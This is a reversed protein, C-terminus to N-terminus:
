KKVEAKFPIKGSAVPHGIEYIENVIQECSEVESKMYGYINEEMAAIMNQDSLIRKAMVLGNNYGWDIYPQCWDETSTFIDCPPLPERTIITKQINEVVVKTERTSSYILCIGLIVSAILIYVGLNNEIEKNKM